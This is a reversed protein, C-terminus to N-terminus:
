GELAVAYGAPRAIQAGTARLAAAWQQLDGGTEMAAIRRALAEAEAVGAATLALDARGRFRAPRIGEVHGHRALLIKTM